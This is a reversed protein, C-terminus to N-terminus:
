KGRYRGIANDIILGILKHYSIGGVRAALPFYSIVKEDPIMGPLTNVEIFYLRGDRDMRYDIRACDRVNLIRYIMKSVDEIEKKQKQTLKAPCDYAEQLDKLKDEYIWKLEFGAINRMNDPLFDFKQEVIPLVLVEDNGILATTFERGDIFEEALLDTDVGNGWLERARQNMRDIDDVVNADFIGKSSGETNPKLILPFKLEIEEITEGPKIIISRPVRIGSASLITKCVMKNLSIAHCTPTSHTYPLKLVECYTPVQSERADGTVGEAINFVLDVKGELKALKGFCSRDAEILIVEHGNAEIARKIGDVTDPADYEVEEQDFSNQTSGAKRQLNYVFAIKM